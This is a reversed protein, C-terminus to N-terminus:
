SEDEDDRRPFPDEDFPWGANELTARVREIDEDRPLEDTVKSIQVGIDVRDIADLPRDAAIMDIAVQHIEEESLQRRLLAFLPVYDGQPVGEPYGARLWARIASLFSHREM